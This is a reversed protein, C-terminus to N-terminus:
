EGPFRRSERRRDDPWPSIAAIFIVRAARCHMHWFLMGIRDEPSRPFGQDWLLLEWYFAWGEEWFPTYFAGRYARYRQNM